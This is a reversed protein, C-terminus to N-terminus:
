VPTYVLDGMLSDQDSLQYDTKYPNIMRREINAAGLHVGPGIISSQINSGSAVHAGPLLISQEVRAGSEVVAEPEIVSGVVDADPSVEALPSILSHKRSRRRWRSPSWGLGADLYRQPNGLDHWPRSTTVTAITRGDRLLPQYLDSITDGPGEEVRELLKPSLVHAGAFVARRTVEGVPEADRMQVVRGKSDLGLGGGFAETSVKRHVLLTVDAESRLHQRIMAKLPWRCLSDGNILVIADAAALFDRVPYLPGLTGLIEEEYSYILPLGFYRQGLCASVDGALHHLNLVAAECDVKKLERLTTGVVPEGCIPLIPKPIFLSLPRLRTGYGATLVLARLRVRKM